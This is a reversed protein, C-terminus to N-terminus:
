ITEKLTNIQQLLKEDNESIEKQFDKVIHELEKKYKEDIDKTQDDVYKAELIALLRDIQELSMKPLFAIWAQKVDDPMTSHYLFAALKKVQLEITQLIEKAEQNIKDSM